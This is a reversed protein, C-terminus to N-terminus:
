VRKVAVGEEVKSEPGFDMASLKEINDSHSRVTGRKPCTARSNERAQENDEIPKSRDLQANRVYGLYKELASEVERSFSPMARKM